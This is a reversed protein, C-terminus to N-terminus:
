RKTNKFIPIPHMKHSNMINLKLYIEMVESQRNTLKANSPKSIEEMAWELEEYTAGIQDEDTRGDNWLGDTPSADQIEQIVGLSEALSYVESKYLDAIPSIDVGGDGYKTFFGVGFDEVKNGTGVVIGNLLGAFHYLATMRLRAKTNALTLDSKYEGVEIDFALFTESLNIVHSTVNDWNSHLYQIHKNSLEYQSESQNIPINLVVTHLGTKACLISTVASDVGGSVGVVLTSINNSNAYDLIWDSIENGLKVWEDM